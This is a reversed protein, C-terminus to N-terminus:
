SAAGSRSREATTAHVADALQECVYDVDAVEM